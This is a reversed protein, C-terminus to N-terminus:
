VIIESLGRDREDNLLKAINKAKYESLGKLMLKGADVRNRKNLFPEVNAKVENYADALTSKKEKKNEIIRQAEEYHSAMADARYKEYDRRLNKSPVSFSLDPRYLEVSNRFGFKPHRENRWHTLWRYYLKGTKPNLIIQHPKGYSISKHYDISKMEIYYLMTQMINKALMDLAPLSILICRRKHRQSIFIKAVQKVERTMADKSYASFAADDILIAGGIPTKKNTLRAFDGSSFAVNDLSFRTEEEVNPARDMLEATSLSAYSKGTGCQGAFVANFQQRKNHMRRWNPVFFWADKHNLLATPVKKTVMLV